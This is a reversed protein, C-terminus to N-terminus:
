EHIFRKSVHTNSKSCVRHGATCGFYFWRLRLFVMLIALSQPYIYVIIIIILINYVTNFNLPTAYSQDKWCSKATVCITLSFRHKKHPSTFIYILKACRFLMKSVLYVLIYWCKNIPLHNINTKIIITQGDFPSLHQSMCVVTVHM